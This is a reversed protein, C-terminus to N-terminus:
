TGALVERGSPSHGPLHFSGKAGRLWMKTNTVAASQFSLRARMAPKVSGQTPLFSHFDGCSGIAEREAAGGQPGRSGAPGWTTVHQRGPWQRTSSADSPCPQTPPTPPHKRFCQHVWAQESRWHGTRPKLEPIFDQSVGDHSM